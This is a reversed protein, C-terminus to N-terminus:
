HKIVLRKTESLGTQSSISYFYTGSSLDSIEINLIESGALIDIKKVANGVINYLIIQADEATDYSIKVSSNAPNPYANLVRTSTIDEIATTNSYSISFIFEVSEDGEQFIRYDIVASDTTGQTSYDLIVLAENNEDVPETAQASYNPSYCQTGVCFSNVAGAPQTTNTVQFVINDNTASTLHLKVESFPINQNVEVNILGGNEIALGEEDLLTYQANSALFAFLLPLILLLRRM